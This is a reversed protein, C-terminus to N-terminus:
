RSRTLKVKSRKVKTLPWIHCTVHDVRGGLKFFRRNDTRLNHNQCTDWLIRNVICKCGSHMAMDRSRDYPAFKEWMNSIGSGSKGAACPVPASEKGKDL